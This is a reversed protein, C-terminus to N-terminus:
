KNSRQKCYKCNGKHTLLDSHGHEIVGIYECSDIVILRIDRTAGGQILTASQIIPYNPPQPVYQHDDMCSYALVCILIIIILSRM